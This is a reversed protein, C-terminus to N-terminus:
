QQTDEYEHSVRGLSCLSIAPLATVDALKKKSTPDAFSSPYPPMKLSASQTFYQPAM